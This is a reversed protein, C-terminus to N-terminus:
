YYQIPNTNTTAFITAFNPFKKSLIDRFITITHKESEYHGVDCVFLEGEADFYEHYKVDSTIYAEAGNARATNILFSGAGGCLAVRKISTKNTKTGKFTDIGLSTKIHKVFDEVKMEENLEGILGAGVEQWTNNLENVKYAIEEYPHSSNMASLIEAQKYKPFILELRQENELSRKGQEGLFPESGDMPKFTGIGETSFGCESYNGINGAGALFLANQVKEFHSNPIYVVLSALKGKMPALIRGQKINLKEALKQNVGQHLVNDLNTHCAYIAINNKIAKIVTREVYNNGNLRKLGRFIIPHHCIILDCNNDIAEEVVEETVDLCILAKEVEDNKNGVLLGSNDYDEQLSSPAVEEIANTISGIKIPM